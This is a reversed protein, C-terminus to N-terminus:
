GAGHWQWIEYEKTGRFLVSQRLRNSRRRERKWSPMLISLLQIRRSFPGSIVTRVIGAAVENATVFQEPLPSNENQIRRTLVLYLISKLQRFRHDMQRGHDERTKHTGPMLGPQDPFDSPYLLSANVTSERLHMYSPIWFTM